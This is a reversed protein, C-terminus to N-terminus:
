TNDMKTWMDFGLVRLMEEISTEGSLIKRFADAQLTLMGERLAADELEVSSARSDILSAISRTIPMVELFMLRGKYGKNNCKPCGGARYITTPQTLRLLSMLEPTTPHPVKCHECLRRVLRQAM